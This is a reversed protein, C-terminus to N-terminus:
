LVQPKLVSACKDIAGLPKGMKKATELFMPGSKAVLSDPSMTGDDCYAGVSTEVEAIWGGSVLNRCQTLEDGTDSM